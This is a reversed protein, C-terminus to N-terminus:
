RGGLNVIKLWAYDVELYRATGSPPTVSVWLGCSVAPITVAPAEVTATTGAANTIQALISTASRRISMRFWSTAAAAM